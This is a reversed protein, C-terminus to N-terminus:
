TMTMTEPATIKMFFSNERLSACVPNAIALRRIPQIAPGTMAPAILSRHPLFCANKREPRNKKTADLLAPISVVLGAPQVYGLWEQHALIAPDKAM